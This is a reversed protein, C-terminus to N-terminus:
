LVSDDTLGTDPPAEYELADPPYMSSTEITGLSQGKKLLEKRRHWLTGERSGRKIVGPAEPKHKSKHQRATQNKNTGQTVKLRDSIPKQSRYQGYDSM